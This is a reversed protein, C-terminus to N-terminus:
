ITSSKMENVPPKVFIDGILDKNKVKEFGYSPGNDEIFSAEPRYIMFNLFVGEFFERRLEITERKDKEFSESLM